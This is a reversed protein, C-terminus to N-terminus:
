KKDSLWMELLELAKELPLFLKAYIMNGLAENPDIRGRWRNHFKIIEKQLYRIDECLSEYKDTVPMDEKDRGTLEDLNYNDILIAGDPVGDVEEGCVAEFTQGSAPIYFYLNKDKDVWLEITDPEGM